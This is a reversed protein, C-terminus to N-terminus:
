NTFFPLTLRTLFHLDGARSPHGKLAPTHTDTIVLVGLFGLEASLFTALTLNVL